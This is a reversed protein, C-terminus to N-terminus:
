QQRTLLFRHLPQGSEHGESVQQMPTVTFPYGTGAKIPYMGRTHHPVDLVTYYDGETKYDIKTLVPTGEVYVYACPEQPIMVSLVYPTLVNHLDELDLDGNQNGNKIESYSVDYYSADTQRTIRASVRRGEANPQSILELALHRMTGDPRYAMRLEQVYYRGPPLQQKIAFLEDQLSIQTINQSRAAVEAHHGADAPFFTFFGVVLVGIMFLFKWFAAPDKM